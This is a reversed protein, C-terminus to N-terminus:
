PNAVGKCEKMLAERKEKAQTLKEEFHTIAKDHQPTSGGTDTIEQKMEAIVKERKSISADANNLATNIKADACQYDAAQVSVASTSVLVALAIATLSANKTM